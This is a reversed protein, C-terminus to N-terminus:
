SESTWHWIRQVMSDGSLLSSLPCFHIPFSLSASAHVPFTHARHSPPLTGPLPLVLFLTIFLSIFPKQSSLPPFLNSPLPSILSLFSMLSFSCFFTFSHHDLQSIIPSSADPHWDILIHQKKCVCMNVCLCTPFQSM